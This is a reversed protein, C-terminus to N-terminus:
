AQGVTSECASELRAGPGARDLDRRQGPHRRDASSAPALETGATGQPPERPERNAAGGTDARANPPHAAQPGHILWLIGLVPATTSMLRAGQARAAHAIAAVAPGRAPGRRPGETPLLTLFGAVEMGGGHRAMPKRGDAIAAGTGGRAPPATRRWMRKACVDPASGEGMLDRSHSVADWLLRAPRRQGRGLGAHRAPAQDFLQGAEAPGAWGNYTTSRTRKSGRASPPHPCGHGRWFEHRRGGFFIVPQLRRLPPDRGSHYRLVRGTRRPHPYGDRSMM